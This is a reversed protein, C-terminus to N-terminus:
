SKGAYPQLDQKLSAIAGAASTVDAPSAKLFGYAKAMNNEVDVYAQKSKTAVVGEVELWDTQFRQIEAAATATDKGNLAAEARNLREILTAITVKSTGTPTTSTPGNNFGGTIFKQNTAHLKKLAAVVQSQNPQETSFAFKVEGSASEIDKYAQRSTQKVGDEVNFWDNEYQQYAAAAGPLNKADAKTLAQDIYADLRQVDQQPTSVALTPLAIVFLMASLALAFLWRWQTLKFRQKM